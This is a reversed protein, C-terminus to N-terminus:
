NSFFKACGLGAPKLSCMQAGVCDWRGYVTCGFICLPERTRTDSGSVPLDSGLIGAVAIGYDVQDNICPYMENRGFGPQADRCNGDM